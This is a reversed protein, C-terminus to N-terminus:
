SVRRKAPNVRDSNQAVDDADITDTSYLFENIESEARERGYGYKEQLLGILREGDGQIKDFDDDTLEGWKKRASGKLQKWKGKLIDSNM